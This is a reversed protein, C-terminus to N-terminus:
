PFFHYELFKDQFNFNDKHKRLENHAERWIEPRHLRKGIYYQQSSNSITRKFHALSDSGDSSLGGGIHIWKLNKKIAFEVASNMLLNFAGSHSPRNLSAGLHYYMGSPGVLFLGMSLIGQTDSVALLILDQPDYLALGNFYNDSFRYTDSAEKQNMLDLYLQKFQPIGNKLDVEQVYLGNKIAGRVRNRATGRFHEIPPILKNIIISYTTRNQEISVDKGAFDHTGLLPHFRLFEAVVGIENCWNRFATDAKLIFKSDHTTSIPGGYGYPTELDIIPTKLSYGCISEIKHILFPLVYFHEGSEYTFLAAKTREKLCDLNIYSKEYYPDRLSIPLQSLAEDWGYFGNNETIVQSKIM